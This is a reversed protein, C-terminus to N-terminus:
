SGFQASGTESRSSWSWTARHSLLYIVLCRMSLHIQFAPKADLSSPRSLQIHGWRGQMGDARGSYGSGYSCVNERM